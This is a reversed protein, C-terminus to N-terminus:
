ILVVFVNIVHVFLEGYVYVDFSSHNLGAENKVICYYSRKESEGRKLSATLDVTVGAEGKIHHVPVEEGRYGERIVNYHPKPHGVARCTLTFTQAARVVQPHTSFELIHPKVAPNNHTHAISSPSHFVGFLNM